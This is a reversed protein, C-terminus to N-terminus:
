TSDGVGYGLLFCRYRVIEREKRSLDSTKKFSMHRVIYLPQAGQLALIRIVAATECPRHVSSLRRILLSM